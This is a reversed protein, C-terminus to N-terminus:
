AVAHANVAAAVQDHRDAAESAGTDQDGVRGALFQAENGSSRGVLGPEELVPLTDGAVDLEADAVLSVHEVDGDVLAQVPDAELRTAKMRLQRSLSWVSPHVRWCRPKERLADEPM